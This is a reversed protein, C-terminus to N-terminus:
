PSPPSDYDTDNAPGTSIKAIELPELELALRNMLGHVADYIVRAQRPTYSRDIHM